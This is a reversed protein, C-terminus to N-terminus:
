MGYPTVARQFYSMCGRRSRISDNYERASKEKSIETELHESSIDLDLVSNFTTIIEQARQLENLNSEFCTQHCDRTRQYRISEAWGHIATKGVFIRDAKRPDLEITEVEGSVNEESTVPKVGLVFNVGIGSLYDKIRTKPKSNVVGWHTDAVIPEGPQLSDFLAVVEEKDYAKQSTFRLPVEFSCFNLANLLFAKGAVPRSTHQKFGKYADQWQGEYTTTADVRIASAQAELRQAEDLAGRYEGAGEFFSQLRVELGNTRSEAM